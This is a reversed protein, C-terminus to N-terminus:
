CSARQAQMEVHGWRLLSGVHDRSWALDVEKQFHKNGQAIGYMRSGITSLQPLFKANPNNANAKKDIQLAQPQLNPGLALCAWLLLSGDSRNSQTEQHGGTQPHHLLPGAKDQKVGLTGKCLFDHKCSDGVMQKYILLMFKTFECRCYLPHQTWKSTSKQRCWEACFDVHTISIHVRRTGTSAESICAPDQLLLFESQDVVDINRM